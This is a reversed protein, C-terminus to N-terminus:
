FSFGIKFDVIQVKYLELELWTDPSLYEWSYYEWQYNQNRWTKEIGTGLQITFGNKLIWKYGVNVGAGLQICYNNNFSFDDDYWGYGYDKSFGITPYFGLYFGKLGTKLPRFILTPKFLMDFSYSYSAVTLLSLNVVDSIKFQFDLDMYYAGALYGVTIVNFAFASPSAQITVKRDKPVEGSVQSTSGTKEITEITEIKDPTKNEETKNEQGFINASILTIILALWIIKKM